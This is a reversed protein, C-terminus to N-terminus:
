AMTHGASIGQRTLQSSSAQPRPTSQLRAVAQSMRQRPSREQSPGISHPVPAQWTSHPPVPLPFMHRDEISQWREDDQSIPQRPLEAQRPGIVQPDPGQLTCHPPVPDPPMHALEMVQLLEQAQSTVQAPPLLQVPVM